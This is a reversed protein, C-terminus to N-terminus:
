LGVIVKTEYLPLMNISKATQFNEFISRRFNKEFIDYINKDIKINKLAFECKGRNEKVKVNAGKFMHSGCTFLRQCFIAFAGKSEYPDAYVNNLM